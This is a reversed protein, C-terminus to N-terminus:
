SYDIGLADAFIFVITLGFVVPVVILVWASLLVSGFDDGFVDFPFFSVGFLSALIGTLVGTAAVSLYVRKAWGLKDDEFFYYFITSFLVRFLFYALTYVVGLLKFDHIYQARTYENNQSMYFYFVCALVYGVVWGATYIVEGRGMSKIKGSM